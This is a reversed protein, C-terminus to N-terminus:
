VGMLWVLWLDNAVSQQPRLTVENVNKYSVPVSGIRLNVEYVNRYSVPLSGMRWVQIQMWALGEQGHARVPLTL